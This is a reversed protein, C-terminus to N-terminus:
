SLDLHAVALFTTGGDFSVFAVLDTGSTTFTPASGGSWKFSSPWTVTASGANKIQLVGGVIITGTPVNSLAITSTGAITVTWANATDFDLTITGSTTGLDVRTGTSTLVQVEGTMTGGARALAADATTKVANLVEDINDTGNALIANLLTGWNGSDGGVDPLNWGFNTSPDAM